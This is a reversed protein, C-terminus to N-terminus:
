KRSLPKNKCKLAFLRKLKFPEKQITTTCYLIRYINSIRLAFFSAPKNLNIRYTIITPGFRSWIMLLPRKYPNVRRSLEAEPHVMFLTHQQSMQRWQQIECQLYTPCTQELQRRRVVPDGSFGWSAQRKGVAVGRSHWGAVRQWM